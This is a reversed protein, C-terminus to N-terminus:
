APKALRCIRLHKDYHASVVHLADRHLDLDLVTAPLQFKHIEKEQGENWFLIHGGSGGGSAGILTGSPHYIVRWAIGQSIGDALHVQAKKQTECDFVMVLPEQVAGFPNSAKHLGGCALRKRDPSIAMGRVGGYHAGQGGNYTHLDGADFTAGKTCSPLDWRFVTGGLDGSLIFQGTPDFLTSYVHSTHGELRHVLKADGASWVKVLNDNGATAILRGDPSVSLARLWGTHAAITTRPVPNSEHLNWFILTGDYSGSYLTEGDPSFGIARVWSEHAPFVTAKGTALDWRQLTFDQAASVVCRGLPDYRCAILPSTYKWQHVIHTAQAEFSGPQASPDSATTTPQDSM